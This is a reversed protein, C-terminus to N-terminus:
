NNAKADRFGKLGSVEDVLLMIQVFVAQGIKIGYNPAVNVWTDGGVEVAFPADETHIVQTGNEWVKRAERFTGDAQQVITLKDTRRSSVYECYFNASNKAQKRAINNSYIYPKSDRNSTGRRFTFEYSTLGFFVEVVIFDKENPQRNYLAAVSAPTYFKIATIGLEPNAMANEQLTTLDMMMGEYKAAEQVYWVFDQNGNTGRGVYEDLNIEALKSEINEWGQVTAATNAGGFAFELTTNASRGAGANAGSFASSQVSQFGANNNNGANNNTTTTMTKVEGKPQNNQPQSAAAAAQRTTNNSRNNRQNAAIVPAGGTVPAKVEGETAKPAPASGALALFAQAAESNALKAVEEKGADEQQALAALEQQIKADALAERDEASMNLRLEVLEAYEEDNLMNESVEGLIAKEVMSKAEESVNNNMMTKVEGKITNNNDNSIAVQSQVNKNVMSIVGQTQNQFGQGELKTAMYRRPSAGDVSVAAITGSATAEFAVIVGEGAPTICTEHLMLGMSMMQALVQEKTLNVGKEIMVEAAPVYPNRIEELRSTYLDEVYEFVEKAIKGDERLQDLIETSELEIASDVLAQVRASFQSQMTRAVDTKMQKDNSTISFAKGESIAQSVLESQLKKDNVLDSAKISQTYIGNQVGAFFKNM